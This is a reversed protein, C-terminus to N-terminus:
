PPSRKLQHGVWTLRVATTPIEPCVQKRGLYWRMLLGLEARGCWTICLPRTWTLVFGSHIRSSRGETEEFPVRRGQRRASPKVERHHQLAPSLLLRQRERPNIGVDQCLAKLLSVLKDNALQGQRTLVVAHFEQLTQLVEPHGGRRRQAPLLGIFPVCRLLAGPREGAPGRICSCRIMSRIIARRLRHAPVPWRSEWVRLHRHQRTVTPAHTQREHASHV